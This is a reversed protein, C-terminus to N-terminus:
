RGPTSHGPGAPGTVHSDGTLAHLVLVANDGSPSLEGWTEYALQVSELAGGAELDLAGLQAFQRRGPDDGARWAGSSPPLAPGPVPQAVV